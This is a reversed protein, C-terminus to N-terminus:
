RRGPARDLDEVRRRVARLEDELNRVREQITANAVTVTVIAGRLEDHQTISYTLMSGVFLTVIGVLAGVAVRLPSFGGEHHLAAAADPSM